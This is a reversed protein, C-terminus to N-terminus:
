RNFTRYHELKRKEGHEGYRLPSYNKPTEDGRLCPSCPCLSLVLVSGFTVRTQLKRCWLELILAGLEFGIRTVMPWILVMLPSKSLLVAPIMRAISCPFFSRESRTTRGSALM